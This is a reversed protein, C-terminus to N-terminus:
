PKAKQTPPEPKEHPTFYLTWHLGVGEKKLRTQVRVAMRIVDELTERKRKM